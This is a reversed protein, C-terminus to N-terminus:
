HWSISQEYWVQGPQAPSNGPVPGAPDGGLDFLKHQKSGDIGMAWIAWVGDRHSLFAIQKGDPSFTPLGDEAPDTTLRAPSGGKSNVVYIDWNGGYDSTYVVLKSDRSWAPATANMNPVLVQKGSGDANIVALGCTDAPFGCDRFVIRNDPGWVPYQAREVFPPPDQTAKTTPDAIRITYARKTIDAGIGARTAYVYRTGDPSWSPLIDETRLSVQRDATGDAEIHHIGRASSNWSTYLLQSGDPSFSPNSALETLLTRNSGDTNAIYLHFQGDYVAFAIRGAGKGGSEGIATAPGTAQPVPTSAGLPAVTAQLYATPVALIGVATPDVPPPTPQGKALAGCDALGRLAASANPNLELSRQLYPIAQPCRGQKQFALGLGLYADNSNPDYTLAKQYQLIAPGPQNQSLYAGGLAIYSPVYPPYLQVATQLQPVADSPDNLYFGYVQGFEFHFFSVGPSIQVVRQWETLAADKRGAILAVWGMARHGDPNNEDDSLAATAEREADSQKGGRLYAEALLAHATANKPDLAVAKEGAGIAADNQGSWALARTLEAYAEASNPDLRTARQATTIADQIRGALALARAWRVYVDANDPSLKAASQYQALGSDFQSKSILDDAVKLLDDVNAAAMTTSRTPSGGAASSPGAGLASGFFSSIPKGPVINDVALWMLAVLVLGGAIAGFLIAYPSYRRIPAPTHVQPVHMPPVHVTPVHVAPAHVSPMHVHAADERLREGLTPAHAGGGQIRPVLGSFSKTGASQHNPAGGDTAPSSSRPSAAVSSASAPSPYTQSPPVHLPTRPVATAPVSEVHPRRGDPPPQSGPTMPAPQDAPAARDTAPQPLQQRTPPQVPTTEASADAPQGLLWRTGDYYYWRGSQAGIMWWKGERDQFRLNEMERKFEDEAIQGVVLKGKLEFFRSEMQALTM